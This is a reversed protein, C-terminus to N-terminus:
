GFLGPAEGNGASTADDSMDIPRILEEGDNRANNVLKSVPCSTLVGDPAPTMMAELRERPTKEGLWERVAEPELVVPMRDHWRSMFANANTTVVAYTDLRVDREEGTADDRMRRTAAERVGALLMIQGDARTFYYPRKDKPGAAHWEYFGSVPVVCRRRKFAERFAPASAIRESRANICKVGISDDQAWPPILGWRALMPEPEGDDGAKLIPGTQTPAFNFSERLSQKLWDFEAQSARHINLLTHIQKWTYRHTTRGCM